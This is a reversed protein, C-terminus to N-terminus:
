KRGRPAHPLSPIRIWTNPIVEEGSHGTWRDPAIIVKDAHKNIWAAWWSFTSGPSVVVYNCLSIMYFDIYYPENIIFQINRGPLKPFNPVVVHPADMFVLFLYESPFYEIAQAFYDWWVNDEAFLEPSRGDPIFTRVHIAVTKNNQLLTGYKENIEQLIRESPAFLARITEAHHAFYKETQYLGHLVLTKNHVNPIPSYRTYHDESHHYLKSHRPISKLSVRHLVDRYYSQGHTYAILMPFVAECQHDLAYATAAAIQFLHNGLQGEFECTICSTGYICVSLGSFVFVLFKYFM